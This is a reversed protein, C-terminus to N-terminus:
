ASLADPPKTQTPPVTSILDHEYAYRMAGTRNHVGLKRYINTLHFKVTKESIYLERSIVKTSLGEAMAELIAQERLTLGPDDGASGAEAGRTARQYVVGEVVQRLASALDDPNIRKGIYASAGAELAEEIYKPDESASLMVVQIEPWRRKIERLCTIGDIGPMRHDLLVLDPHEAEVLPVVQDGSRALGVVDIGGAKLLAERVGNLMLLHDDAICVRLNASDTTM